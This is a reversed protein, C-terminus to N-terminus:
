ARGGTLEAIMDIIEDQAARTEAAALGHTPPTLKV